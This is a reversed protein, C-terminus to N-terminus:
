KKGVLALWEDETLVTVGAERAKDLKSGAGPGAVVYDTKKSVSGATKAGLREAMEEAQERTMTMLAGTFVVTKGVLRREGVMSALAPIHLSDKMREVTRVARHDHDPRVVEPSKKEVGFRAALGALKQLDSENRSLLDASEGHLLATRHRCWVGNQGAQCTCTMRLQGKALRASVYYENGTSGRVVFCLLDDLFERANSPSVRGPQLGIKGAVDIVQSVGVERAAALAIQACAVADDGAHHHQFKIGLRGAVAGLEVSELDPWVARSMQMTCLFIFEPFTRRYEALTSCLVDVDFLANHALILADSIDPLFESFVEPFEPKDRVDEPLIGHRSITGSTFRMEKPRILRYARRTVFANEIWALGMACASRREENATEFDIALTRM